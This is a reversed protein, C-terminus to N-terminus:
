DNNMVKLKDHEELKSFGSLFCMFPTVVKLKDHEELVPM